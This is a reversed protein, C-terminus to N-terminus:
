GAMSVMTTVRFHTPTPLKSPHGGKAARRRQSARRLLGLDVSGRDAGFAGAEGDRRLGSSHAVSLKSPGRAARDVPQTMDALCEPWGPPGAERSLAAM